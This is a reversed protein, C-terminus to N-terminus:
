RHHRRKKLRTETELRRVTEIPVSLVSRSLQEFRKANQGDDNEAYIIKKQRGAKVKENM